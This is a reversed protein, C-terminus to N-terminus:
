QPKKRNMIIILFTGTGVLILHGLSLQTNDELANIYPAFKFYRVPALSAGDAKLYVANAIKTASSDIKRGNPLTFTYGISYTYRGPKGDTREGGQRRVSTIVAMDQEGFVGLALSGIGWLVFAAGLLSLLIRFLIDRRM